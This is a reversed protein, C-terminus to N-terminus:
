QTAYRVCLDDSAHRAALVPALPAPPATASPPPKPVIAVALLARDAGEGCLRADARAIRPRAAPSTVQVRGLTLPQGDSAGLRVVIERGAHADDPPAALLSRIRLVAMGGPAVARVFAAERVHLVAGAMQPRGLLVYAGVPRRPARDAPVPEGADGDDPFLSGDPVPLLRADFAQPAGPAGFAVYFDLDGGRYDGRPLTVDEVVLVRDSAVELRVLSVSPLFPLPPPSSPPSSAPPIPPPAAALVVAAAVARIM